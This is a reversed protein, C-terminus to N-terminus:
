HLTDELPYLVQSFFDLILNLRSVMMIVLGLLLRQVTDGRADLPFRWLPLVVSVHQVKGIILLM